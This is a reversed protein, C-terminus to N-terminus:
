IARYDRRPMRPGRRERHVGPALELLRVLRYRHPRWREIIAPVEEHTVTRGVLASGILGPLHYDGFPAADADGLARQGVQAATWVGVGPISRLMRYVAEPEHRRRAGATELRGAYSACTAITRAKGLEVGARHWEWSTIGRWTAPSPPVRMTAPAPGPPPSGFRRVLRRWSAFADIGVVKQELIAPVLAELVRGTAPVRLGRLRRHATRLLDLHPEFGSPDDDGGLIAPAASVLEDAGPGWASVEIAGTDRQSVRYTVAGGDMLSTRWVSGDALLQHCPDGGGRQLVSLTLRADVPDAPRWFTHADPQM